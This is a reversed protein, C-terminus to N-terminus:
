RQINNKTERLGLFCVALALNVKRMAEESQRKRSGGHGQIVKHLAPLRSEALTLQQFSYALLTRSEVTVFSLQQKM